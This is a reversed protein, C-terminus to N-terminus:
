RFAKSTLLRRPVTGGLEVTQDHIHAALDAARGTGGLTVEVQEIGATWQETRAVLRLGRAGGGRQASAGGKERGTWSSPGIEEHGRLRADVCDMSWDALVSAYSGGVARPHRVSSRGVHGVSLLGGGGLDLLQARACHNSLGSLGSM